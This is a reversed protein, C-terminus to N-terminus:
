PTVTTIWLPPSSTTESTKQTRQVMLLRWLRRTLAERQDIYTMCSSAKIGAYVATQAQRVVGVALRTIAAARLVPGSLGLFMETVM